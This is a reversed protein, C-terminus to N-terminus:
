VFARVVWFVVMGAVLTWIQSRTRFAVGGGALFGAVEPFGIAVNGDADTLLTVVLAALVASGVYRLAILVTEPIRKKALAVIFVARMVYTGVGVIVVAALDGM